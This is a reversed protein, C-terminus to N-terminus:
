TECAVTKSVIRLHCVAAISALAEGRFGLTAIRTLDDEEAIKSTTHRQVCLAIDDETMGEGDDRVIISSIGGDVLDISISESKADLANEVLEKVVSAPREIVEGAAIKRALAEDLRKIKM